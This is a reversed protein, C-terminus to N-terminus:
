FAFQEKHSNYYDGYRSRFAATLSKARDTEGIDRLVYLTDMYPSIFNEEAYEIAKYLYDLSKESYGLQHCCLGLGSLVYADNKNNELLKVNHDYAEEYRELKYLAFGRNRAAPMDGPKLTLARDFFMKALQFNGIKASEMGQEYAEAYDDITNALEDAEKVRLAYACYRNESNLSGECCIRTNSCGGLCSAGFQCEACVGGLDDRCFRRNWAFSKEDNWIDIVSRERVNGEIYKRDRIATCGVVDGNHYIGFSRKGVHCGQWFVHRKMYYDTVAMSRQDYYGVCDSLSIGVGDRMHRFTFDLLYDLKEPKLNFDPHFVFNGMPIGIQFQWTHVGLSLLLAHMAELEDINKETITTVVASIVPSEKLQELSNVSRQFSGKRRIYDHTQEMGDLSIAIGQMGADAAGQISEPTLLWGNTIVTVIIGNDHLRKAINLWDPRTTPEGGSLTIREIGLQGLDDCLKLAEDPGLEDPLPEACSSGCHM